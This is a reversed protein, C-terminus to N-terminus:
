KINLEIMKKVNYYRSNEYEPIMGDDFATKVNVIAEGITKKPYYGLRDKIKGSSIYYSREDTSETVDIRVKDGVAQKVMQAIEIVKYNEAGFNFVDGNILDAPTEILDAYLGVIDDMYVNPRKQQGGFVTILDKNVAHSTLINVTLDLRM